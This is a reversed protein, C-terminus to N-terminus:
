RKVVGPHSGDSWSLFKRRTVPGLGGGSGPPPTAHEVWYADFAVIRDEERGTRRHHQRIWNELIHHMHSNREIRAIYDCWFQDQGLRGPSAEWPEGKWGTAAYNLPDIRRGDVTRAEVVVLGNRQPPNPAFMSWGQYFRGYQIMARFLEPQRFKMWRPVARNEILVQSTAALMFLVVLGERLGVRTRRLRELLPIEASERDSPPPPSSPLGCAALGLSLSIRQRNQAVRDYIWGALSRIGPLALPIWVLAGGPLSRFIAAFAEARTLLKGDPEEVVITREVLEPSVGKPLKEIETNPVFRLREFRDMRALVRMTQFCIGCSADFYITREKKRKKWFAGLAEFDEASLLLPFFACMVPTFLGVNLFLSFGVHMAPLTLIAIRRLERRGLPSLILVAAAGEAFLTARTFLKSLLVPFDERVLSGLWTVIRDQYLVWHVVSGDKWATGNKHVTNFFYIVALQLLIAFVAVSRVPADLGEDRERHSGLEEARFERTQRLSALLADVSFRKGLPLFASWLALLNMVVDGGNELIVARSHLSVVAVLSLVQFLKTKWGVLLCLYILGCLLFGLAAEWTHSALFFVSFIYEAAPRWLQTHNPLLGQNSYWVSIDPVRRLLDWLLLTAFGIRFIGLARPDFEFWTSVLHKRWSPSAKPGSM